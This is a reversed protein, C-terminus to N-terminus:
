KPMPMQHVRMLHSVLTKYKVGNIEKTTPPYMMLAKIIQDAMYPNVLKQVQNDNIIQIIERMLKFSEINFSGSEGKPTLWIIQVGDNYCIYPMNSILEMWCADIRKSIAEKIFPSFEKLGAIITDDGRQHIRDIDFDSGKQPQIKPLIFSVITGDELNTFTTNTM